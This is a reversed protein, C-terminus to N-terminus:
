MEMNGAEDIYGGQIGTVFDGFKAWNKIIAGGLLSLLYTTKDDQDKRLFHKALEEIDVGAEIINLLLSGVRHATNAGKRYEDRIAIALQRLYDKDAAM